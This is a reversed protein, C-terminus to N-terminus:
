AKGIRKQLETQFYQFLSSAIIYLLLGAAMSSVLASMFGVGVLLAVRQKADVSSAISVFFLVCFVLPLIYYPDKSSLDPIWLFPAQYLNISNNLIQNLAVFFPIQLVMPLCGAMGPMGHTRILEAREKNLMEPDHKYKQQLYQLKKSLEKQKEMKKMSNMLFPMMLLRILFTLAIIAFGFNPIFKNLWRLLTLMLKAFWWFWGIELTQELRPDVATLASLEKPGCYFSVTWSMKKEVVPGEVIFLSGGNEDAKFYGRQVFNDTAGTYAHVFYRDELGLLPPIMFGTQLLLKDVTLKEITDSVGVKSALGSVTDGSLGILQPATVFIRPRLSVGHRPECTLHLDVRFSDKFITFQKSIEGQDTQARYTLVIKEPTEERSALTYYYPTKEDFAVLFCRGERDTVVPPTITVLIKEEGNVRRKFAFYELAAGDNTFTYTALPTEVTTKEQPRHDKTDVFDVEKNLPELGFPPTVIRQGSVFSPDSQEPQKLLRRGVFLNFLATVLFALGLPVLLDKFKMSM